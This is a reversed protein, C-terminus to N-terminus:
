IEGLLSGVSEASTFSADAEVIGAESDAGDVSGQSHEDAHIRTAESYIFGTCHLLQSPEYNWLPGNSLKSARRNSLEHCAWLLQGHVKFMSQVINPRNDLLVASALPYPALVVLLCVM